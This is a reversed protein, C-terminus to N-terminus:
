HSAPRDLDYGLGLGMSHRTGIGFSWSGGENHTLWVGLPRLAGPLVGPFRNAQVRTYAHESLILSGLLSNHRDIYVGGALDTEWRELGTDPDVTRGRGSFGFTWGLNYGDGIPRILGAQAVLGITLLGRTEGLWPLPVKYSMVQGVNQVRAHPLTFSAQPSWDAARLTETFFRAIGDHSMVLVGLPEFFYVDAMTGAREKPGRPWELAENLLNAGFVIASAGLAPVPVGRYDLWERLYRYSLGGAVIHGAVNSTWSWEWIEPSAILVERHILEGWGGISEVAEFPHALAGFVAGFREGWNVSLVDRHDGGYYLNSLGRNTLANLPGQVSESGYDILPRYYLYRPEEDSEQAAVLRPIAVGCAIVITAAIVRGRFDLGTM